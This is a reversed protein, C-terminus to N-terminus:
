QILDVKNAILQKQSKSVNSMYTLSQEIFNSSVIKKTELTKLIIHMPSFATEM